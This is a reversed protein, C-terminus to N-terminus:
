GQASRFSGLIDRIVSPLNKVSAPAVFITDDGAITGLLNGPRHHDLHRAVLSASGPSTHIVILVGNHRIDQILHNIRTTSPLPTQTEDPLRYVTRGESDVARVAGLRRLDRSITSQTVKFKLSELEERIEDQTSAREQELLRRLATLRSPSETQAM